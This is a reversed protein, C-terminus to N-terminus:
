RQSMSRLPLRFTRNNRPSPFSFLVTTSALTYPAFTLSGRAAMTARLLAHLSARAASDIASTEYATGAVNSQILRCQHLDARLADFAAIQFLDQLADLTLSSSPRAPCATSVAFEFVEPEVAM